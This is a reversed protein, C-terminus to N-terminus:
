SNLLRIMRLMEGSNGFTVYLKDHSLWLAGSATKGMKDGQSNLLLPTTLGFAINDKGLKKHILNTGATINGWQDSGGIQLNCNFNQNLFWFDIAQSLSYNFEMVSMHDQSELRSKISHMNIMSNVSFFRSFDMLFETFSLKSMWDNNDVFIVDGVIKSIINKIGIKNHNIIDDTLIPRSTSRGTPDGIKTTFGGLLVIPKIGNSVANRLVMLQILSGVHLCDATLDFGIYPISNNPINGTTQKVFGREQLYNIFTM